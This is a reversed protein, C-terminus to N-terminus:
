RAFPDTARIEGLDLTVGAEVNVEFDLGTQPDVVISAAFPTWVMLLYSRPEIGAIAFQGMSNTMTHPSSNEQVGVSYGPGPTILIKEGLYVSQNALPLGTDQNILTGTVVGTEANPLPIVFPEDPSVIPTEEPMPYPQVYPLPEKPGPYAEKSGQDAEPQTPTAFEIGPTSTIVNVQIDDITAPTTPSRSSCASLVFFAIVVLFLINKTMTLRKEM